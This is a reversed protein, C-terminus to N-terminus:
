VSMTYRCNPCRIIGGISGWYRDLCNQHFYSGCCRSEGGSSRNTVIVPGSDECLCISCVKGQKSSSSAKKSFFTNRPRHFIWVCLDTIFACVLSLPTLVLLALVMIAKLITWPFVFGSYLSKILERRSEIVKRCRRLMSLVESLLLSLLLFNGEVHAM